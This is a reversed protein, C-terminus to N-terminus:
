LIVDFKVLCLFSSNECDLGDIIFEGMVVLTAKADDTWSGPHDASCKYTGSDSPKAKAIFLTGNPFIVYGSVGNRVPNGGKTWSIKAPPTSTAVCHLYVPENEKVTQNDPATTIKPQVLFLHIM